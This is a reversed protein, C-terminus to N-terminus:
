NEWVVKSDQDYPYYQVADWDYFPHIIFFCLFILSYIIFSVHELLYFEKKNFLITVVMACFTLVLVSLRLFVCVIEQHTLSCFILLLVLFSSMFLCVFTVHAIGQLISTLGVWSCLMIIMVFYGWYVTDPNIKWKSNLCLSWTALQLIITSSLVIRYPIHMLMNDSISQEPYQFLGFILSTKLALSLTVVFIYYSLYNCNAKHM